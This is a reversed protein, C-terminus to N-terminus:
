ANFEKLFEEVSILNLYKKRNRMLSSYKIQDERVDLLEQSGRKVIGVGHDTDVVTMELDGRTARLRVFARWVTGNWVGKGTGKKTIYEKSQHSRRRPNCDHIIITGNENLFKLSNSVDRMVQQHQHLGDIFIIDYNKENKEFFEDSTMKFTCDWGPDVGHKTEIIIRNFNKKQRIGIELYNKYGYLNIMHNIIDFRRM